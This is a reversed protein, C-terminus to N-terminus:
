IPYKEQSSTRLYAPKNMLTNHFGNIFFMQQLPPILSVKYVQQTHQKEDRININQKEDGEVDKRVM